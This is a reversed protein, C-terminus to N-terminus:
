NVAMGGESANRMLHHYTEEDEEDEEEGEEEEEATEIMAVKWCIQLM